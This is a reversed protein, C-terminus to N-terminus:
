MGKSKLMGYAYMYYGRVNNFIYPLDHNQNGRIIKLTEIGQFFEQIQVKWADSAGGTIVLYDCDAMANYISYIRELAENCVEKSSEELMEHFPMAVTRREKRNIVKIKGNKLYKQMSPVPIETYYTQFIRKSTRELVEKMGYKDFTEYPGVTANQIYFTDLTGFGPDFIILNSKFYKVAEPLQRGNQDMSVSFLTGMPQPIIHIDSQGLEFHFEKWTGEGIKLKFHHETSLVDRLLPEDSKLYKPPLGTEVFFKKGLSSGYKNEMMGMALGTRAIVLFMESFYRNRGYLENESNSEWDAFEQAMEGVMWLEDSVLDHYLIQNKNPTGINQFDRKLKIAYSPFSAAANPSFTKVASYGIDLAIGWAKENKINQKPIYLTKTKFDSTQIM